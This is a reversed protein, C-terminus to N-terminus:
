ILGRLMWQNVRRFRAAKPQCLRWNVFVFDAYGSAAVGSQRQSHLGHRLAVAARRGSIIVLSPKTAELIAEKHTSQDSVSTQFLRLYQVRHSRFSRSCSPYISLIRYVDGQLPQMQGDGRLLRMYNVIDCTRRLFLLVLRSFGYIKGYRCTM